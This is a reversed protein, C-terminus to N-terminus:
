ARQEIDGLEGAAFQELQQAHGRGPGVHEVRAQAADGTTVRGNDHDDFIRM